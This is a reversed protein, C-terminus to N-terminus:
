AGRPGRPKFGGPRGGPGASRPGGPRGAPKPGKGFRPKFSPAAGQEEGAEVRRMRLQQGSVWVKQLHQLTGASIGASV